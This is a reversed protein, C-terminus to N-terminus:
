GPLAAAGRRPKNRAGGGVALASATALVAAVIRSRRSSM